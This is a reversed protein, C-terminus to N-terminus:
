AMTVALVAIREVAELGPLGIDLLQPRFAALVLRLVDRERHVRVDDPARATRQRQAADELMQALDRAAVDPERGADLEGLPAEVVHELSFRLLKAGARLGACSMSRSRAHRVGSRGARRSERM